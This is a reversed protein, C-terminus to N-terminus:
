ARSISDVYNRAQYGAARYTKRQESDRAVRNGEPTKFSETVFVSFPYQGIANSVEGISDKEMNLARVAQGWRKYAGDPQGRKDTRREWSADFGIHGFGKKTGDPQEKTLKGWVHVYERGRLSELPHDEGGRLNEVKTAVFEYRGTPATMREFSEKINQADTHKEYLDEISIIENNVPNGM